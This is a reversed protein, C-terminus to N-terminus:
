IGEYYVVLAYVLLLFLSLFFLKLVLVAEVDTGRHLKEANLMLYVDISKEDQAGSNSDSTRTTTRTISDDDKQWKITVHYIRTALPM